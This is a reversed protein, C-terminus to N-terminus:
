NLISIKDIFEIDSIFSDKFLPFVSLHELFKVSIMVNLIDCQSCKRNM